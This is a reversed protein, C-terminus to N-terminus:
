FLFNKGSVPDRLIRPETEYIKRLIEQNMMAEPRGDFVIKGNALAIVRAEATVARNLDHSVEILATGTDIRIRDLLQNIEIQRRYDLFASPEDLLLIEPEQALAAAIRVRQLEGGSLSRLNREAFAVTETMHLVRDAVEEDYRSLPAFRSLHPYRGSLTLQRVTIDPVTELTQQVFAIRRALEKRPIERISVGDLAVIGTWGSVILDLSRLLTTKGAGNQGAIVIHEGQKVEFNLGSLLPVTQRPPTFSFDGVKLLM